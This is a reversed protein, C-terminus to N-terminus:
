TEKVRTGPVTPQHRRRYARRGQGCAADGEVQVLQVARRAQRHLVLCRTREESRRVMQVQLQVHGKESLASVGVTANTKSRSLFSLSPSSASSPLSFSPLSSSPLLLRHHRTHRAAGDIDEPLQPEGPLRNGVKDDSAHHPTRTRLVTTRLITYPKM